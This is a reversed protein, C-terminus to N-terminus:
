KSIFFYPSIKGSVNNKIVEIVKSGIFLIFVFFYAPSPTRELSQVLEYKKIKKAKKIIDTTQFKGNNYIVAKYNTKMMKIEESTGKKGTAFVKYLDKEQDICVIGCQDYKYGAKIMDGVTAVKTDSEKIYAGNEGIDKLFYLM